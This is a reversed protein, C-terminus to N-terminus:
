GSGYRDQVRSNSPTNEQILIDVKIDPNASQIGQKLDKCLEVSIAAVVFRKSEEKIQQLMYRISGYSKGSAPAAICKYFKTM